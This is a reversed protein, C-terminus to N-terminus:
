KPPACSRRILLSPDLIISVPSVPTGEDYARIQRQLENVTLTAVEDIPQHITTLHYADDLGIANNFGIVSIDEPIRWGKRWLANITGQALLDNSCIIATPPTQMQTIRSVQKMAENPTAAPFTLDETGTIGRAQLCERYVNMRDQVSSHLLNGLYAIRRHGLDYLHDFALRAGKEDNFRVTSIYSSKRGDVSVVPKNYLSLKKMLAEDGEMDGLIITGDFFHNMMLKVQHETILKKHQAHSILIDLGCENGATQIKNILGQLFQSGIDRMIVGIIGSKRSRLASAFPNPSYGLENAADLVKKRTKDKINVKDPRFVRSVSGISVGALMAVDSITASNKRNRILQIVKQEEVESTLHQTFIKTAKVLFFFTSADFPPDSKKGPKVLGYRHLLETLHEIDMEGAKAVDNITFTDTKSSM